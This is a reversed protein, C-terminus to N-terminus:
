RVNGTCVHCPDHFAHALRNATNVRSFLDDHSWADTASDTLFTEGAPVVETLLVADQPFM